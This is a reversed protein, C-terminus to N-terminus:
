FKSKLCSKIFKFANKNNIPLNIHMGFFSLLNENKNYNRKFNLKLHSILGMGAGDWVKRHYGEPDERCITRANPIRGITGNSIKGITGNTALPVM